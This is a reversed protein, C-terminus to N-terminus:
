QSLLMRLAEVDAADPKAKLYADFAAQARDRAGAKLEVLMTGRFAEPPAGQTELARAYADLARPADGDEGRLRYVEGKGFWLQGDDPFQALLRQFVLESRGYQRLALEDAVLRARMGALAALYREHGREGAGGAKMAAERLTAMREEPEPHTAFLFQRSREATSVKYEAILQDWVEAAASPAYGAKAMLELGIEDAEREQDRSFSFASAVAALQALSGLAGLGAVALGLTLFTSADTKNRADRWRQVSHQRLYHGLEHGLIAALQAEDGCRLLLGTWVQVMGNPAMSANFQATRVIYTRVDPCHDKALRCVVDRVYANLEADRIVFRSVKLDREARDMLSWLGKEDSEAAPRYGPALYARGGPATQAGAHSAFASAALGCLACGFRRRTLSVAALGFRAGECDRGRGRADAPRRPRSDPSQVLRHRRDQSRGGVRVRGPVRGARRRRAACRRHDGRRPGRHRLQRACVPVARLRGRPHARDGCGRARAVLRVQRGQEALGPQPPVPARAGRQRGRPAAQRSRPEDRPGRPRRSRGPFRGPRRETCSGGRGPGRAHAEAGRRDLRLAAGALRRRHAAVARRRAADRRHAADEGGGAAAAADPAPGAGCVWGTHRGGGGRRHVVPRAGRAAGPTSATGVEGGRGATRGTAVPEGSSGLGPARRDCSVSPNLAHCIRRQSRHDRGRM